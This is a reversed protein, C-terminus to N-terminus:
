SGYLRSGDGRSAEEQRVIENPKRPNHYIWLDPVGDGNIDRVEVNKFPSTPSNRPSETNGPSVQTNLAEKKAVTMVKPVTV